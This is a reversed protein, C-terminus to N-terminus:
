AAAVADGPRERQEASFRLFAALQRALERCDVTFRFERDERPKAPDLFGLDSPAMFAHPQGRLAAIRSQCENLHSICFVATGRPSFLTNHIASTFEGVVCEAAAYMALQRPLPLAQPHVVTFGLDTLTSEVEAENVIGRWSKHHERRSLYIRRPTEPPPEYPGVVRAILEEVVTNMEPHFGYSHRMMMSPLIFCPARVRQLKSHYSIIETADFYLAVFDRVWKSCDNPLAIPLPRGFMRLKSLLHLRPLMELLFHGYILNPHLAVGVPVDTEIIEAGSKLLSRTWFDPMALAEPKVSQNLYAPLVAPHVLVRGAQQLLGVSGVEYGPLAYIEVAPATPRERHMNRIRAPLQEADFLPSPPSSTLSPHLTLRHPVPLAGLDTLSVIDQYTEVHSPGAYALATDEDLVRL